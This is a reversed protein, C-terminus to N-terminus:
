AGTLAAYAAEIKARGHHRELRRLTFHGDAVMQFHRMFVLNLAAGAAAGLVPVLQAATKDSLVIGFRPAIARVLSVSSPLAADGSAFRELSLVSFHLALAARVEYYGLETFDDDKSRGGLAFVEICALRTAPTALDEGHRVATDAIARLLLITTLPLEVLLAPLGFFGGLAGTAMAAYRHLSDHNGRPPDAGLSKSATALAYAVTQESVRALRQHWQRPLLKLGEAVPLGLVSSIRAALSPHELADHARRLEALDAESLGTELDTM